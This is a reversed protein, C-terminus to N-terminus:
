NRAGPGAAGPRPRAVTAFVDRALLVRAGATLLCLGAFVWALPAFFQPWLCFAAFFAITESGEVLGGTFYLSKAGHRRSELGHREALVAYALFSAGNVYFSLLLAAGAVGNAGPDLLIFGMPMAGYFAFDCVIDLLGGFDSRGRARAVAGDLGDALRSLAVLVLAVGPAGVAVLAAAGLGLALGALTVADASVGAAALGRGARNLPPDIVKRLVADLM